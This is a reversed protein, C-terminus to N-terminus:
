TCVCRKEPDTAVLTAALAVIAAVGGVALPLNSADAIQGTLMM